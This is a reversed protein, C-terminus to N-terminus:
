PPPRHCVWVGGLGGHRNKAIAVKFESRERDTFRPLVVTGPGMPPHSGIFVADGPQQEVLLIGACIRQRRVHECFEVGHQLLKLSLARPAENYARGLGAAEDGAGVDRLEAADGLGRRDFRQQRPTVGYEVPEVAQRQRGNGDDVTIAEAAAELHREGAIVADSDVARAKTEGFHQESQM